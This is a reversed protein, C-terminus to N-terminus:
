RIVRVAGVLDDNQPIPGAPRVKARAADFAFCSGPSVTASGDEWTIMIPIGHSADGIADPRGHPDCISLLHPQRFHVVEM